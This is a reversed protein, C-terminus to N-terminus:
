CPSTDRNSRRWSRDARWYWDTITWGHITCGLFSNGFPGWGRTAKIGINNHVTSDKVLNLPPCCVVLKTIIMIQSARTSFPILATELMLVFSCLFIQLGNCIQGPQVGTQIALIAVEFEANIPMMAWTNAHTCVAFFRDAGSKTAPEAFLIM